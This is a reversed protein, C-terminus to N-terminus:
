KPELHSLIIEASSHWSPLVRARELAAEELNRRVQPNQILDALAARWERQSGRPAEFNCLVAAGSGRKAEDVETKVGKAQGEPGTLSERGIHNGETVEPIGGIRNAVTPLGAVLAEALVMGYSEFLSPYIFLDARRMKDMVEQPSLHPGIHIRSKLGLFHASRLFEQVLAGTEDAHGYLSWEWPLKSLKALVPLLFRHNKSATWNAITLLQVPAKKVERPHLSEHGESHNIPRPARTHTIGPPAVTIPLSTSYLQQVKSKLYHSPVVASRCCALCAEEDRHKGKAIASPLLPELSPLYHVLM